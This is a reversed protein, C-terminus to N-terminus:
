IVYTPSLLLVLVSYVVRKFKMAYFYVRPGRNSTRTSHAFTPIGISPTSCFNYYVSLDGPTFSPSCLFNYIVCKNKVTHLKM